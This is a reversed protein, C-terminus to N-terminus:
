TGACSPASRRVPSRHGSSGHWEPWLGELALDSHDVLNVTQVQRFGLPIEVDELLVPVLVGRANGEGAEDLVWPSQVSASSWLVVVCRAIGLAHAIEGHWAQGGVLLRDWWVSWGRDTLAGAIREAALRDERAYSLFVDPSAPPAQSSHLTSPAADPPM